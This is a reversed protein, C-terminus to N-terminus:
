HHEEHHDELHGVEPALFETKIERLVHHSGIEAGTRGMSSGDDQIAITLTAEDHSLVGNPINVLFRGKIEDGPNAVTPLGLGTVTAGKINTVAISYHIAHPGKNIFRVDYFNAVGDATQTWTTGPSRLITVDVLNRMAFLTSVAGILVVWLAFYAAIRPTLWKSTGALVANASTYRILGKKLGVKEMVSDCADICATCAVCELQIGDRIDIGTPCVRVCEFCDVCHGTDKTRRDDGRQWKAREEGRKFDYTISITNEDVLASMYRGYPCVILCAQERFRAFVLYFVVTFSVLALFLEVHVFPGDTV